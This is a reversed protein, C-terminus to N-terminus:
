NGGAKKILKPKGHVLFHSVFYILYMFVMGLDHLFIFGKPKKYIFSGDGLFFNFVVLFLIFFLMWLFYKRRKIVKKEGNKNVFFQTEFIKQDYVPIIMKGIGFITLLLIIIWYGLIVVHSLCFIEFIFVHWVAFDKLLEGNYRLPRFEIDFFLYDRFVSIFYPHIKLLLYMHDYTFYIFVLYAAGFCYILVLVSSIFGACGLYSFHRKIKNTKNEM